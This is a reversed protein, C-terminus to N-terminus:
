GKNAGFCILTNRTKNALKASNKPCEGTASSLDVKTVKVVSSDDKNAACAVKQDPSMAGGVKVCDGVKANYGLCLTTTTTGSGRGCRSEFPMEVEDCKTNKANVVYTANPDSCELKENEADMSSGTVRLCDGPKPASSNTNQIFFYAAGGVVVLAVLLGILKSLLGKGVGKAIEGATGM